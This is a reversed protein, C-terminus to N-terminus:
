IRGYWTTGCDVQGMVHRGVALRDWVVDDWLWGIVGLRGVALRDWVVDDWLWGTWYWTTGCGFEDWVVDDWFWDGM